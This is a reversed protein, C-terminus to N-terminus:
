KETTGGLKSNLQFEWKHEFLAHTERRTKSSAPSTPETIRKTRHRAAPSCRERIM